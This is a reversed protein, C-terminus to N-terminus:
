LVRGRQSHRTRCADHAAAAHNAHDGRASHGPRSRFLAWSWRGAAVGLPLDAL